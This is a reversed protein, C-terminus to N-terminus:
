EDGGLKQTSQSDPKRREGFPVVRLGKAKNRKDYEAEEIAGKELLASVALVVSQTNRGLRGPLLKVYYRKSQKPVAYPEGM